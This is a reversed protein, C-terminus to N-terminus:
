LPHHTLILNANWKKAKNLLAKSVDLAVLIKKIQWTLNGVQLGSNDWEEALSFPAISNNILNLLDKTTVM